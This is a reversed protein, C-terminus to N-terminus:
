NENQRITGFHDTRVRMGVRKERETRGTRRQGGAVVAHVLTQGIEDAPRVLHHQVADVQLVLLVHRGDGADDFGHQISDLYPSAERRSLFCSNDLMWLCLPGHRGRM